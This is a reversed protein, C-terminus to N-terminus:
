IVKADRLARIRASDYGLGRLIEETHEGLDPAARAPAEEGKCRVPPAVM